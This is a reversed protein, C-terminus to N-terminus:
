GAINKSGHLVYIRYAVVQLHVLAAATALSPLIWQGNRVAARMDPNTMTHYSASLFWCEPGACLETLFGEMENGESEPRTEETPRRALMARWGRCCDWARVICREALNKAGNLIVPLWRSLIVPPSPSRIVRATQTTVIHYVLRYVLPLEKCLAGRPVNSM